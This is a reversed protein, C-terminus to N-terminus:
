AGTWDTVSLLMGVSKDTILPLASLLVEHGHEVQRKARSLSPWQASRECRCDSPMENRGAVSGILRDVVSGGARQTGARPDTRILDGFLDARAPHALHKAGTIHPEPALLSDPRM